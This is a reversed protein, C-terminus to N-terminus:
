PNKAELEGRGHLAAHEGDLFRYLTDRTVLFVADIKEMASMALCSNFASGKNAITSVTSPPHLRYSWGSICYETGAAETSLMIAGDHISSNEAVAQKLVESFGEDFAQGIAPLPERPMASAYPIKQDATFCLIIPYTLEQSGRLGLALESIRDLLDNSLNGNM